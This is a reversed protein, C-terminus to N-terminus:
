MQPKCISGHAFLDRPAHREQALFCPRKLIMLVAKQTVNLGDAQRAHEYRLACVPAPTIVVVVPATARPTAHAHQELVPLTMHVTRQM